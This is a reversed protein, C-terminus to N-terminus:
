LFILSLEYEKGSFTGIEFSALDSMMLIRCRFGDSLGVRSSIKACSKMCMPLAIGFNSGELVSAHAGDELRSLCYPLPSLLTGTLVRLSSLAEEKFVALMSILLLCFAMVSLCGLTISSSLRFLGFWGLVKRSDSLSLSLFSLPM